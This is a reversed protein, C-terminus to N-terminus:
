CATLILWNILSSKESQSEDQSVQLQFHKDYNQCHQFRLGFPEILILWYELVTLTFDQFDSCIKTSFKRMLKVKNEILVWSFQVPPISNKKTLVRWCYLIRTVNQRHVRWNDDLTWKASRYRTNTPEWTRDKPM